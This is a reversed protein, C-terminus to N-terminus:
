SFAKRQIITRHLDFGPQGCFKEEFLCINEEHHMARMQKIHTNITDCNPKPVLRYEGESDHKVDLHDDDQGDIYLSGLWTLL